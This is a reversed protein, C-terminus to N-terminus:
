SVDWGGIDQNFASADDFMWRIRNVSSLDLHSILRSLQQIGELPGQVQNHLPVTPTAFSM